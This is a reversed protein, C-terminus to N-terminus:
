KKLGERLSGAIGVVSIAIAEYLHVVQLLEVDDAVVAITIALYIVGGTIIWRNVAALCSNIHSGETM